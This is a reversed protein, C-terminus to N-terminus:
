CCRLAAHSRRGGGAWAHRGGNLCNMSCCITWSWSEMKSRKCWWVRELMNELPIDSDWWAQIKDHKPRPTPM